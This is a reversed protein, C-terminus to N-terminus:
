RFAMEKILMQQDARPKWQLRKSMGYLDKYNLLFAFYAEERATSLIVHYLQNRKAPDLENRAPGILKNISEDASSSFNRGATLYSTIMRDADLQNNAASSFIAMPRNNRDGLRNLFERFEFMRVTVKLGITSWYAAVAEITERDKLWRGGTGILELPQGEVGAEKILKRAREPDYPYPAIRDSWGTSDRGIFQGKAPSAYGEYLDKALAQKDIAYNLAQRVRADKTIGDLANLVLFNHFLGDVEAAQPARKIDEPAINNILDFDGALLGALRVSADPVFRFQARPITVKAGRWSPSAELVVRTGKVWEALRYPGTGVPNDAFDPRKSAEKPVMQLFMLRTPLTPDVESTTIRLTTADVAEAHKITVVQYLQRSKYNPDIIREIAAAAVSADFPEGNQYKIGERIKLEWTTPNVLRPLEAALVPALNGSTVRDILPEYINQNVLREGGDSMLQPDLTTPESGVAVRLDQAGASASWALLAIVAAMSASLAVPNRTTM